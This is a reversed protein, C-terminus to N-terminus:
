CSYKIQVESEGKGVRLIRLETVARTIGINM